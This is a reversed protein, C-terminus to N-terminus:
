KAMFKKGGKIIIGKANSNVKQGAINYATANDDAPATIENIGAPDAVTITLNFTIAESEGKISIQSKRTLGTEPKKTAYNYHIWEGKITQGATLNKMDVFTLYNNEKNTPDGCSFGTPCVALGPSVQDYDIGEGRANQSILSTLEVDVGLEYLTGFPMVTEKPLKKVEINDGNKVEKGEITLTMTQAMMSSIGLMAVAILTFIKKM